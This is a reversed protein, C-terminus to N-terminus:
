QKDQANQGNRERCSAQRGKITGIIITSFCGKWVIFPRIRHENWCSMNSSGDIESPADADIEVVSHCQLNRQCGDLTWTTPCLPLTISYFPISAFTHCHWKQLWRHGFPIHETHIHYRHSNILLSHHARAPFMFIWKGYPSLTTVFTEPLVTQTKTQPVFRKWDPCLDLHANKNNTSILSHCCFNHVM